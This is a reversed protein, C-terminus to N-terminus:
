RYKDKETGDGRPKEAGKGAKATAHDDHREESQGKMDIDAVGDAGRENGYNSGGGPGGRGVNPLAIGVNADAHEKFDGCSNARDGAREDGNM